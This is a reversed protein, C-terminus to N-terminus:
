FICSPHHFFEDETRHNERPVIVTYDDNTVPTHVCPSVNRYYKHAKRFACAIARMGPCPIAPIFLDPAFFCGPASADSRTVDLPLIISSGTKRGTTREQFLSLIARMQSPCTFVFHFMETIDTSKEAWPALRRDPLPKGCKGPLPSRSPFTRFLSVVRLAPM